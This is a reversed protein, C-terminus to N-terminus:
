YKSLKVCTSIDYLYIHCLKGIEAKYIKIQKYNYCHSINVIGLVNLECFLALSNPMEQWQWSTMFM